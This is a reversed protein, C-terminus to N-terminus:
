AVDLQLATALLNAVDCPLDDRYGNACDVIVSENFYCAYCDVLNAIINEDATALLTSLLVPTSEIVGVDCPEVCESEPNYTWLNAHEDILFPTHNYYALSLSQPENFLGVGATHIRSILTTIKQVSNESAGYGFISLLDLTPEDCKQHDSISQCIDYIGPKSFM